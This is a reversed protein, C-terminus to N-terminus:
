HTCHRKPGLTLRAALCFGKFPLWFRTIGHRKEGFRKQNCLLQALLM